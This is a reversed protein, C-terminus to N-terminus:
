KFILSFIDRSINQIYTGFILVTFVLIDSIIIRDM